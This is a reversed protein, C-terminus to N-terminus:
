LSAEKFAMDLSEQEFEKKKADVEQSEEREPREKKMDIRKKGGAYGRYRKWWGMVETYEFCAIVLEVSELCFSLSLVKLLPSSTFYLLHNIM